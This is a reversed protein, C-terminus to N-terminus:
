TSTNVGKKIPTLANPDSVFNNTKFNISQHQKGLTFNRNHLKSSMRNNGIASIDPSEKMEDEIAM